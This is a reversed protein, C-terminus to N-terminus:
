KRFGRKAGELAGEVAHESRVRFDDAASKVEEATKGAKQKAAGATDGAKQKLEGAKKHLDARTEKGSKPATLLGAVVGAVAGVLAGIAFKKGM